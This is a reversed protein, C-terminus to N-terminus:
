KRQHLNKAITHFFNELYNLWAPYFLPPLLHRKYRYIYMKCSQCNKFTNRNM